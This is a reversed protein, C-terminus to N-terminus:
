LARLQKVRDKATESRPQFSLRAVFSCPAPRILLVSEARLGSRDPRDLCHRAARCANRPASNLFQFGPPNQFKARSKRRKHSIAHCVFDPDDTKARHIAAPPM